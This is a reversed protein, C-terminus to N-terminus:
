RSRRCSPWQRLVKRTLRLRNMRLLCRTRLAATLQLMETVINRLHQLIHWFMEFDDPPYTGLQGAPTAVLDHLGFRRATRDRSTHSTGPQQRVNEHRFVAIM